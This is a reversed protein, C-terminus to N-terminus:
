MIATLSGGPAVDSRVMAVRSFIAEKKSPFFSGSFGLSSCNNWSTNVTAPKSRKPPPWFDLAPTIKAVIDSQFYRVVCAVDILAM